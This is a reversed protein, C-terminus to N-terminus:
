IATSSFALLFSVECKLLAHIQDQVSETERLLGKNVTLRKLRGDNARVYDVKTKAFSVARQYTYEAYCRINRGQTQVTNGRTLVKHLEQLPTPLSITVKSSATSPWKEPPRPRCTTSPSM